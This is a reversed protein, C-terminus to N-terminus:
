GYIWRLEAPTLPDCDSTKPDRLYSPSNGMLNRKVNRHFRLPMPSHAAIYARLREKTSQENCM